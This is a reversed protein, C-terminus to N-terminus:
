NVLCIRKRADHESAFVPERRWNTVMFLPSDAQFGPDLPGADPIEAYLFSAGKATSLMAKYGPPLLVSHSDSMQDTFIASLKADGELMQVWALSKAPIDFRMNAGAALTLRDILVRTGKVREVTILRQRTVGTEFPQATVSKENFAIAM